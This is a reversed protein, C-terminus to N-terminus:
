ENNRRPPKPLSMWHTIKGMNERYNPLFYEYNRLMWRVGIQIHKGDTVLVEDSSPHQNHGQEKIEPLRDKVSIWESMTVGTSEIVIIQDTSVTNLSGTVIERAVDTSRACIKGFESVLLRQYTDSRFGTSVRYSSENEFALEGSRDNTASNFTRIWSPM